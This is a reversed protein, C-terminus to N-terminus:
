RAALDGVSLDVLSGVRRAEPPFECHASVVSPCVVVRM